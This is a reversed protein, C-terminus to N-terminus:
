LNYFKGVECHCYYVICKILKEDVVHYLLLCRAVAWGVSSM